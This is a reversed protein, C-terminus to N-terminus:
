FPESWLFVCLAPSSLITPPLALSPLPPLTTPSEGYDELLRYAVSMERLMAAYEIPVLDVPVKLTDKEKFVALSRWWGMRPQFPLVWDNEQLNKVGPGVKVVVGIGDNGAVFPVRALGDGEQGGNALAGGTHQPPILLWSPNAFPLLSLSPSTDSLHLPTIPEVVCAHAARLLAQAQTLHM